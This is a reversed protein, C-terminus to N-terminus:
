KWLVRYYCHLTSMILSIYFYKKLTIGWLLWDYEYCKYKSQVLEVNNMWIYHYFSIMRLSLNGLCVYKNHHITNFLIRSLLAVYIYITQPKLGTTLWNKEKLSLDDGWGCKTNTMVKEVTLLRCVRSLHDYINLSNEMMIM